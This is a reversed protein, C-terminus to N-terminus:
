GGIERGLDRVRAGILVLAAALLTWGIALAVSFVDLLVLSPFARGLDMATTRGLFAFLAGSSGTAAVDLALDYRVNPLVAYVYAVTASAAVLMWAVIRALARWQRALAGGLVIEWGGAAAAVFLPLSALLYRSPPSGDAWWYAIDAIYAFSLLSGVSLAVLEAGHARARRLLPVLGIFALLYVPARPILGFVRDFLLGPAGIWPRLTLVPQQERILVYGAGPLFLGLTRWNVYALALVLVAFPLSAASARLALERPRPWAPRLAAYALVLGVGAVIPWARTSLWPLAGLLASAGILDRATARTGARIARAATVFALATLLEPYIQTTYTLLPHTLAATAAALLAPRRAFGLDRGLLYLQAALAAGALCLLALVGLRGAIAYPAVALVPLGLDRISFVQAGVRVGHIDPLRSPYFASYRDGAYDNALDLDGDYLLSQTILLYHPEDSATPMVARHYPLLVLAVVLAIAALQVAAARDSLRDVTAYLAALAHVAFAVGIVLYVAGLVGNLVPGGSFHGVLLLALPVLYLLFHRRLVAPRREPALARALFATGLAAFALSLPLWRRYLSVPVPDTGAAIWPQSSAIVVWGIALLNVVLFLAFSPGGVLWAQGAPGHESLAAHTEADSRQREATNQQWEATGLQREATDQQRDVFTGQIYPRSSRVPDVSGKKRLTTGRTILLLGGTLLLAPLLRVYAALYWDPTIPQFSPLWGLPDLGLVSAVGNRIKDDFATNLALSPVANLVFSTLASMFLAVAVFGRVAWGAVPARLPSSALTTAAEGATVLGYTVFPTWLPLVDVFYRAPPAYGGEWLRFFSLAVVSVGVALAAHLFLPSPRIPAASPGAPAAMQRARDARLAPVLGILGIFLWPASGAIGFTRDFLIAPLTVWVFATISGQKTLDQAQATGYLYSAYPVPIAYLAANIAMTALLVAGTVIAVSRRTLPDRVLFPLLVLLPVADRPTLLLTLALIAAALAPRRVPATFGWRFGTAVLAAGFMNPYIHTALLSMPAFATAMLWTWGIADRPTASPPLAVRQGLDRLILLTVYSTWAAVLAMVIEVGSRGALVWGPLILLPLTYGQVPRPGLLTDAVHTAVDSASPPIGLLSTFKAADIALDIDGHALRDAVLLYHVQDGLPLSAVPLWAGLAAYGGFAVVLAVWAPAAGSVLAWAAPALRVAVIAVAIVGSLDRSWPGLSLTAFAWAAAGFALADLLLARPPSWGRRGVLIAALSGAVSAILVALAFASAVDADPGHGIFTDRV